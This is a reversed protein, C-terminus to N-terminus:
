ADYQGVLPAPQPKVVHGAEQFIGPVDPDSVFDQWGEADWDFVVWVRDEDIPDRFVTAGKSGHERRKAAGKTSFVKLFRDLDEFKTTALIM